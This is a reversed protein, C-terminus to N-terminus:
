RMVSGYSEIVSQIIKNVNDASLQPYIPLTIERSYNDYSVRFDKIDFGRDKFIKLMPLPIFHVNVAVNRKSIEEIIKDRQNESINKIRLLYVHYSSEKFTTQAPPTEAWDLKSFKNNYEQFILKRKALLEENYKRIQALGVAACVDSLNIKFGPYVIDYKWGGKQSKTFADKTQGNLSLLRNWKYIENNDFPQPSEHM